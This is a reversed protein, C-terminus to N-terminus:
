FWDASIKQRKFAREREEVEEIIREREEFFYANSKEQLQQKMFNMTAINTGIVDKKKSMKKLTGKALIGCLVLFMWSTFTVAIRCLFRPIYFM